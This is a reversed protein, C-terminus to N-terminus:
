DLYQFLFSPVNDTSWEKAMQKYFEDPNLMYFSLDLRIDVAFSLYDQYERPSLIEKLGPPFTDEFHKRVGNIAKAFSRLIERREHCWNLAIIHYFAESTSQRYEESESFNGM